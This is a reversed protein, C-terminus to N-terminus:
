VDLGSDLYFQSVTYLYIFSRCYNGQLQVPRAPRLGASVEPFGFMVRFIWENLFGRNNTPGELHSQDLVHSVSQTM